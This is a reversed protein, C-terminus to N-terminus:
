GARCLSGSGRLYGSSRFSPRMIDGAPSMPAVVGRGATTLGSAPGRFDMTSFPDRFGAVPLQLGDYLCEQAIGEAGLRQADQDIDPTDLHAVQNELDHRCAAEM